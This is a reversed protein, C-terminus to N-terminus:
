FSALRILSDSLVQCGAAAQEINIAETENHSVGGLCPIFIMGSPCHNSLNGADHAAGSILKLNSYQRFDVSDQIAKIIM